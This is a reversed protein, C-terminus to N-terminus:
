PVVTITYTVCQDCPKDGHFTGGFEIKHPGVPLPDVMLYYGDSAAQDVFTGHEISTCGALVAAKAGADGIAHVVTRLGVAAAESCVARIQEDTM